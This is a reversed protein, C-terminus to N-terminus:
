SGGDPCSFQRGKFNTKWGADLASYWPRETMILSMPAVQGRHAWPERDPWRKLLFRLKFIDAVHSGSPNQNLPTSGGPPTLFHTCPQQNDCSVGLCGNRQVLQLKGRPGGGGLYQVGQYELQKPLISCAERTLGVIRGCGWRLVWHLTHTGCVNSCQITQPLLYWFLGAQEGGTCM